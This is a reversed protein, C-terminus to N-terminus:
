KKKVSRKNRCNKCYIKNAMERASCERCFIAECKDCSIIASDDDQVSCDECFTKDCKSCHQIDVNEVWQMAVKECGNCYYPKDLDLDDSLKQMLKVKTENNM